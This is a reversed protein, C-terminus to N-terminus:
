MRNIFKNDTETYIRIDEAGTHRLWRRFDEKTEYDTTVIIQTQNLGNIFIGTLEPNNNNEM